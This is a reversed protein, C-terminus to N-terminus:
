LISKESSYLIGINDRKTDLQTVYLRNKVLLFDTYFKNYNIAIKNKALTHDLLSLIKLVAVSTLPAHNLDALFAVWGKACFKFTESFKSSSSLSFIILIWYKKTTVAFYHSIQFFFYKYKTSSVNFQFTSYSKAIAM